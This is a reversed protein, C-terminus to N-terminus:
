AIRWVRVNTVDISRSSYKREPFRCFYASLSNRKVKPYVFSDGIEMASLVAILGGGKGRKAPMPVNKEIQLDTMRGGEEDRVLEGVPLPQQLWHHVSVVVLGASPV